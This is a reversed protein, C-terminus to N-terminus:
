IMDEWMERSHIGAHDDYHEKHHKHLEEHTHEHNMDGLDDICTDYHGYAILPSNEPVSYSITQYLIIADEKLRIEEIVNGFYDKLEGLLEGARAVQGAKKKPFWCGAKESDIYHAHHMHRPVRMQMESLTPKTKLVDIRRLINKVDKQSAAVEEESWMGNCGREILVSPIGLSGAYYYAVGKGSLSTVYFPMDAAQAMSEAEAVTEAPANGVCYIFPTLDEFWDGNHVDIYYDVKSFIEKEM